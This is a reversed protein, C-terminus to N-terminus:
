EEVKYICNKKEIICKKSKGDFYICTDCKTIDKIRVKNKNTKM